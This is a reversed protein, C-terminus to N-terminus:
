RAAPVSRVILAPALTSSTKSWISPTSRGHDDALPGLLDLPDGTGAVENSCRDRMDAVVQLRADRGALEVVDGPREDGLM